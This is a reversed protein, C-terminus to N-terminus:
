NPIHANLARLLIGRAEQPGPITGHALLTWLGYVLAMLEQATARAKAPQFGAVKLAHVMNSQLRAANIKEMRKLSPKDMALASLAFWATVVDQSVMEPSVQAGLVAVLRERPTNANRLQRLTEAALRSYLDRYVAEIVRDKDDFYHLILTPTVGAHRAIAKLSAGALGEDHICAITGDIVQRRRLPEMGTKPM